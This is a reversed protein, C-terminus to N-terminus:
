GPICYAQVGRRIVMTGTPLREQSPHRREAQAILSQRARECRAMSSYGTVAVPSEGYIIVLKAPDAQAVLALALLIM